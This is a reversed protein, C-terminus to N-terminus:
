NKNELINLLNKQEQWILQDSQESTIEGRDLQDAVNQCKILLTQFDELDGQELHDQLVKNIAKNECIVRLLNRHKPINDQYQCQSKATTIVRAYQQAIAKIRATEIIPDYAFGQSPLNIGLITASLAFIFNASLPKKYENNSLFAKSIYRDFNIFRIVSNIRCDPSLISIM